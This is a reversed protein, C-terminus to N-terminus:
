IISRLLGGEVRLAAGTTASAAPSCVYAVLSAVEEVSALRGIISSPRHEAVFAKGLAELDADPRDGAMQRLFTEVGESLTPGPLVSNVTVGSGAVTEALGRAVALQATKTMGYHIMELPINVASESSIFVVRGWGREVMGPTLARSLRVGSMVNVDFLRQWDGDPIEFFPKPEFIGANNVLIDVPGLGSVLAEAGEATAVDGPAGEFRGAPMAGSLRGIAEEVRAPTRGNVAVTAGLEALAEAIAYGIGGTSGTVLARRGTLDLNM